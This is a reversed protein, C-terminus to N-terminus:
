KGEWIVKEGAKRGRKRSERKCEEKGKMVLETVSYSNEPKLVAIKQFKLYIRTTDVNLGLLHM